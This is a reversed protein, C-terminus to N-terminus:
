YYIGKSQEELGIIQRDLQVGVKWLVLPAIPNIEMSSPIRTLTRRVQVSSLPPEFICELPGKATKPPMIPPEPTKTVMQNM